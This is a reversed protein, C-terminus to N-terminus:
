NNKYSYYQVYLGTYIDATVVILSPKHLLLSIAIAYFCLCLIQLVYVKHTSVPYSYVYLYLDICCVSFHPVLSTCSLLSCVEQKQPVSSIDSGQTVSDQKQLLEEPQM